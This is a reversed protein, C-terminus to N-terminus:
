SRTYAAHRETAMRLLDEGMSFRNRQRLDWYTTRQPRLTRRRHAAAMDLASDFLLSTSVTEITEVESRSDGDGAVRRGSEGEGEDGGKGEGARKEEEGEGNGESVTELGLQPRSLSTAGRSALSSSRKPVRLERYTPARARKETSQAGAPGTSMAMGIAPTTTTRTTSTTNDANSGQGLMAMMALPDSAARTAALLHQSSPVKTGSKKEKSAKGGFWTAIRRGISKAPQQGDERPAVADWPAAEDAARMTPELTFETPSLEGVCTTTTTTTTPEFHGSPRPSFIGEEFTKTVYIGAM